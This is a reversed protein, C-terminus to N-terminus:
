QHILSKYMQEYKTAIEKWTFRELWAQKGLTSMQQLREPNTLINEFLAVSPELDIIARGAEHTTPLLIGGKTWDIIEQINGVDTALFPLGAALAEFIVLPSCEINSPFLFLDSQTFTAVTETRSLSTTIIRKNSFISKFEACKCRVYCLIGRKAKHPVKGIILLTAPGIKSQNFLKIAERHGKLGTHDGVLLILKHNVPISLIERINIPPPNLFEREDAGNPIVLYKEQPLMHKQAFQIDQYTHSLFINLDYQKLYTPMEAFYSAYRPDYLGSFGTPVFIKKAPITQLIPLALDTAWQQAAFQVVIDFSPDILLNQYRQKEEPTGNIGRVTNGSLLFSEIKVGNLERYTRKTDTRTAVIVEHGQAVLRESLQQVVVSMGHMAPLYSEVTHLIKMYNM